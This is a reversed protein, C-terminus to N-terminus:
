IIKGSVRMCKEMQYCINGMDRDKIVEINENM